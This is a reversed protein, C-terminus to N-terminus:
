PTYGSAPQPIFAHLHLLLRGAVGLRVAVVFLTHQHLSGDAMVAGPLALQENPKLRRNLASTGALGRFM